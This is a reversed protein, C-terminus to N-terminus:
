RAMTESRLLARARTIDRLQSAPGFWDCLEEIRELVTTPEGISAKHEALRTAAQLELLKANQENAAAVAREFAATAGHPDPREGMMLLRGKFRFLESESFREGTAEIYEEADRLLDLAGQRDGAARRLDAYLIHFHPLGLRAGSALYADLSEQVRGLGHELAGARGQIWGSLLSSMPRWYGLDHDVSHAYTKAIWQGLEAPEVRSLHLISRMGWAQARTVPGGMREAYELSLDSRELSEDAYGLNWLVVALYALAGVAADGLSEYVRDSPDPPLYLEFAGELHVRAEDFNGLYMHVLGRDLHGEGVAVPDDREGLALMEDALELATAYEGRLLHLMWQGRIVPVLRDDCRMRQCARRARIYTEDVGATAYGSGAQLSAGIHTLFDLHELGDAAQPATADLAELGRRFHEAAELYAARELARTGAAHWFGVAQAPEEACSWHHAVVEPEREVTAPFSRV